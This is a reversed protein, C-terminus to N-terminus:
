QAQEGATRYSFHTAIMQAAAPYQEALESVDGLEFGNEDFPPAMTTGLLSWEGTTAAAMWTGAPVPVLPRQGAAIDTGLVPQEVSGDQCLLLMQVAAGSYHHWLETDNLRHMASFDGPRLLFYIASSHDDRWSQTWLGGESPLPQLDLQAIIDDSPSPMALALRCSSRPLRSSGHSSSRTLRLAM